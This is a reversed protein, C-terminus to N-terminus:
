NAALQTISVIAKLNLVQGTSGWKNENHIKEYIRQPDRPPCHCFQRATTSERIM